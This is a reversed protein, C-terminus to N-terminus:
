EKILCKKIEIIINEAVSCGNPPLLVDNYFQERQEQMFDDGKLVVKELFETIDGTCSGHYHCQYAKLGVINSQEERGRGLYMVPKKSYLYEVIFSGCDHIMADSSKFLELYSGDVFTTNDGNVWKEYYADTKDKGWSPHNYLVAKLQPHPKFAFQIVDKFDETLALMADANELFTSFKLVGDHGEITHHPAWIVRKFKNDPNKWDSTDGVVSEYEDYIPYGTVVANKLELPQVALALQKIDECETFYRWMLGHFASAYGWEDAISCYGYDVYCKLYKRLHQVNYQAEISGTWLYSYFIIDPKLSEISIGHAYIQESAKIVSYGRSFFTEYTRKLINQAQEETQYIIIPCVLIVPNFGDDKQMLRYLSDYKWIASDHVLFVVNLPEKKARVRKIAKSYAIQQRKWILFRKSKRYGKLVANPIYAEIRHVIESKTMM